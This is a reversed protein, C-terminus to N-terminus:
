RLPSAPMSARSNNVSSLAMSDSVVRFRSERALAGKLVDLASKRAAADAIQLRVKVLDFPHGVLVSSVGGAAGAALSRFGPFSPAVLIPTEDSQSNM